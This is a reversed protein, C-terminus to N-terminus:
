GLSKPVLQSSEDSVSYDNFNGGVPSSSEPGNFAKSNTEISKITNLSFESPEPFRKDRGRFMVSNGCSEKGSNHYM